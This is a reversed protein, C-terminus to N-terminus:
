EKNIYGYKESQEKAQKLTNTIGVHLEGNEDRYYWQIKTKRPYPISLYEEYVFTDNTKPPKLM